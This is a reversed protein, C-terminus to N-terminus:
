SFDMAIQAGANKMCLVKNIAVSDKIYPKAWNLTIQGNRMLEKALIVESTIPYIREIHISMQFGSWWSLPDDASLNWHHPWRWQHQQFYSIECLHNRIFKSLWLLWYLHYGSCAFYTAPNVGSTVCFTHIHVPGPFGSWQTQHDDSLNQLDFHSIEQMRDIWSASLQFSVHNVESHTWVNYPWFMTIHLPGPFGLDDHRIIMM